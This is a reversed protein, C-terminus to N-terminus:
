LPLSLQLIHPNLFPSHSLPCPSTLPPHSFLTQSKLKQPSVFPSLSFSSSPPHSNSPPPFPPSPQHPQSPSPATHALSLSLAPPPSHPAPSHNYNTSQHITSHELPAPTSTSPPSANQPAEFYVEPTNAAAAAAAPPQSDEGAVLMPEHSGWKTSNAVLPLPVAAAAAAAREAAAAAAREAAAAAAREAAAPVSAPLGLHMGKMRWEVDNCAREEGEEEEERKEGTEEGRIEMMVTPNQSAFAAAQQTAPQVVAPQLGAPQLMRQRQLTAVQLIDPQLMAPQLSLPQARLERQKQELGRGGFGDVEMGGTPKLTLGESNVYADLGGTSRQSKQSKQSVAMIREKIKSSGIPKQSNEFGDMGGEDVTRVRGRESWEGVSEGGERRRGEERGERRGKGASRIEGDGEEWNSREREGRRSESRGGRSQQEGGRSGRERERSEGRRSEGGRSEGGRSEGGGSESRGGQKLSQIYRLLVNSRGSYAGRGVSGVSGASGASGASGPRGNGKGEAGGRGMEEKRRATSNWHNKVSNDTRGPLLRAIEAWRNGLRKHAEVFAREEEETWAEKKIGRKLHNHWRERCQKGARGNLHAAIATWGKAGGREVLQRLLADEEQSPHTSPHIYCFVFSHIM